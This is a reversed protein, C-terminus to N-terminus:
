AKAILETKRNLQNTNLLFNTDYTSYDPMIKIINNTESILTTQLSSDTIEQEIMYKEKKLKNYRNINYNIAHLYKETKIDEMGRHNLQTIGLNKKEHGFIHEVMGMRRSYRIKSDKKSMKDMMRKQEETFKDYIRRYKMKPTCEDKFECNQCQVTFYIDKKKKPTQGQYTLLHGEPCIYGQKEENWRFNITSFRSYDKKANMLMANQRTQLFGNIGNDECYKCNEDTNFGNDVLVECDEPLGEVNENALEYMPIFQNYDNADNTVDMGIIFHNGDVVQLVNYYFDAKGNIKILKSDKDTTSITKEERELSEDIAEKLNTKQPNGKIDFSQEKKLEEKVQKKVFDDIHKQNKLDQPLKDGDNEGYVEDDEEDMTFLKEIADEPLYDENAVIRQNLCANAKYKGGDIAIRGLNLMDKEKAMKITMEFSYEILDKYKKKFRSITSHDPTQEASLYIFATDRHVVRSLKRAQFVGDIAGALVITLLMDMSYAKQGATSTHKKHYNKEAKKFKPDNKLGEVIKEALLCSDEGNVYDSLRKPLLFEKNKNYEMITM